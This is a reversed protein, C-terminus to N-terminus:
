FNYFLNLKERYSSCVWDFRILTSDGMTSSSDEDFIELEDSEEDGGLLGLGNEALKGVPSPEVKVCRKGSVMDVAPSCPKPRM